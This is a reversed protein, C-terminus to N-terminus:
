KGLKMILKREAKALESKHAFGSESDAYRSSGKDGDTMRTGTPQLSEGDMHNEHVMDPKESMAVRKSM